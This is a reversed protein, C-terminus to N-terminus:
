MKESREEKFRVRLKLFGDDHRRQSWQPAAALAAPITVDNGHRLVANFLSLDNEVGLWDVTRSHGRQLKKDSYVSVETVSIGRPM